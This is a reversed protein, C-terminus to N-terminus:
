KAPAIQNGCSMCQGNSRALRYKKCVACWYTPTRSVIYCGNVDSFLMPLVIEENSHGYVVLGHNTPLVMEPRLYLRGELVGLLLHDQHELLKAVVNEVIQSQDTDADFNSYAFSFNLVLTM